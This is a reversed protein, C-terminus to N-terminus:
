QEKQGTWGNPFLQHFEAGTIIERSQLRYRIRDEYEKFAPDAQATDKGQKLYALAQEQFTTDGTVAYKCALASAVMAKSTPDTPRRRELAQAASLFGDYDKTDFAVGTRAQLILPEVDYDEPLRDKCSQLKELAEASKDQRLLVIGQLYTALRGLDRSEPVYTAAATMQEAAAEVQGQSSCAAFRQMAAYARYFRMNWVFSVVVLTLVAALSLKIWLPFPRNRFFAQCADCVPREALLPLEATGNDKGCNVCVTPDSQPQLDEVPAHKEALIKRCCEGCLVREEVRLTGNMPFEGGCQECRCKIM